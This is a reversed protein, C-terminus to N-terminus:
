VRDGRASIFTGLRNVVQVLNADFQGFLPGLLAPDEFSMETRARRPERAVEPFASVTNGLGRAPKSAPKRAM